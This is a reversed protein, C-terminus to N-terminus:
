FGTKLLTQMGWGSICLKFIKFTRFILSILNKPVKLYNSLNM